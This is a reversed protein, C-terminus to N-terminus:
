AGEGIAIPYGGASEPDIPDKSQRSAKASGRPKDSGTGGHAHRAEKGDGDGRGTDIRPATGSGEADNGGQWRRGDGQRHEIRDAQIGGNAEGILRGTNAEVQIARDDYIAICAMDKENTIELVVGLHEQMWEQMFPIGPGIRARATFLRVEQGDHVWKKVRDVMAKIPAGIHREGQWGHYEALTGDLDVAIWGGM